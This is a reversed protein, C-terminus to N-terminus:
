VGPPPVYFCLITFASNMCLHYDGDPSNRLRRDGYPVTFQLPRTAFHHDGMKLSVHYGDQLTKVTRSPIRDCDTGSCCNSPYTWGTPAEHALAPTALALLAAITRLM